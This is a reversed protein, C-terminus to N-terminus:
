PPLDSFLFALYILYLSCPSFLTRQQKGKKQKKKVFCPMVPCLALSLSLCCFASLVSPPCFFLSCVSLLGAASFPSLVFCFFVFFSFHTFIVAGFILQSTKVPSPTLDALVSEVELMGSQSIQLWSSSNTVGGDKGMGRGRGTGAAM